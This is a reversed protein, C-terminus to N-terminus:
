YIFQIVELIQQSDKENQSIEEMALSIEAEIDCDGNDSLESLHQHRRDAYPQRSCRDTFESIIQQLYSLEDSVVVSAPHNSLEM